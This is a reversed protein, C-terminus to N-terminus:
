EEKVKANSLDIEHTPTDDNGYYVRVGECGDKENDVVIHFRHGFENEMHIDTYSIDDGIVNGYGDCVRM